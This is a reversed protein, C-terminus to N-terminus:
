TSFTFGKLVGKSSVFRVCVLCWFVGNLPGNLFAIILVTIM